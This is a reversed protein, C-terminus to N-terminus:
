AANAARNQDTMKQRGLRFLDRGLMPFWVLYFLGGTSLLITGLAPSFVGALIHAWDLGNALIGTYATWRGLPGGRLMVLSYLVAGGQILIGAMFGGTSHWWDSAIVAEGAALIQVRQAESTALMYRDSLSIISFASHNALSLAVGLFILATAMGVYANGDRGFARYVAFTTVTYLSVNVLSTLDLRLFGLLRDQGLVAFYEEATTPEGGLVAVMVITVLTCALQFFAAVGAFRYLSRPEGESSDVATRTLSLQSM